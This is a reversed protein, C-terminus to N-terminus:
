ASDGRAKVAGAAAVAILMLGIVLLLVLLGFRKYTDPNTAKDWLSNLRSLFGTLGQGQATDTQAQAAATPQQDISATKAVPGGSGPLGAGLQDLGLYQKAFGVVNQIRADTLPMQYGPHGSNAAVWGAVDPTEHGGYLTRAQNYASAIADVAIRANLVPDLLVDPRDAYAAGQGGQTNLQFLGYSQEIDSKNVLDPKFSGGTEMAAISAWIYEPIGRAQFIPGVQQRIQEPISLM